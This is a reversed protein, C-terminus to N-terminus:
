VIFRFFLLSGFMLPVRDVVSVWNVIRIVLGLVLLGSFIFIEFVWFFLGIILLM